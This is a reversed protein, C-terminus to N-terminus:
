KALMATVAAPHGTHVATLLPNNVKGVADAIAHRYCSRWISQELLDAGPRGCVETAAAQIRKYLVKAGEPSSLDLDRYSVTVSREGLTSSWAPTIDLLCVIFALAATGLLSIMWLLVPGFFASERNLKSIHSTSTNM